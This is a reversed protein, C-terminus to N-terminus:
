IHQLKNISHYFKLDVDAHKPFRILVHSFGSIIWVSLPVSNKPFKSLVKFIKLIFYIRLPRIM